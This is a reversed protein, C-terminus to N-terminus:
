GASGEPDLLTIKYVQIENKEAAILMEVDKGRRVMAIGEYRHRPSNFHPLNFSSLIKGNAPDVQRVTEKREDLIFLSGEFFVMGAIDSGDPLIKEADWPVTAKYKKNQFSLRYIKRPSEEKGAYLVRGNSALAELGTNKGTLGRVDDVHVNECEKKCDVFYADSRLTFLALKGRGEETMAVRGDALVTIDECDDAGTIKVTRHHEIWGDAYSMEFIKCSDDLILYRGTNQVYAAGSFDKGLKPFEQTASLSVKRDGTFLPGAAHAFFPLLVFSLLALVPVKM